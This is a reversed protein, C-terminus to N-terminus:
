VFGDDTKIVPATDAKSQTADGSSKGGAGALVATSPQAPRWWRRYAAVGLLTGVLLVFAGM